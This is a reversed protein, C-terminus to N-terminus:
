HKWHPHQLRGLQRQQYRDLSAPIQARRRARLSSNAYRECLISMKIGAGSGGTRKSGKGAVRAKHGRRACPQRGNVLNQRDKPVESGIMKIASGEIDEELNVASGSVQEHFLHARDHAAADLEKIASGKEAPDFVDFFGFGIIEGGAALRDVLDHQIQL